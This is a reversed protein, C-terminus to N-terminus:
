GISWSAWNPQIPFKLYRQKTKLIDTAASVAKGFAVTQRDAIASNIPFPGHNVPDADAYGIQIGGWPKRNGAEGRLALVEKIPLPPLLDHFRMLQRVLKSRVWTGGRWMLIGAFHEFHEGILGEKALGSHFDSSTESRTIATKRL